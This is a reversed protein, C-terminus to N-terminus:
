KYSIQQSVLLDGHGIQAAGRGWLVLYVGAPCLWALCTKALVAGLCSSDWGQSERLDEQISVASRGSGTMRRTCATRTSDFVGDERHQQSVPINGRTHRWPPPLFESYPLCKRPTGCSPFFWSLWSDRTPTQTWTGQAEPGEGVEALRKLSDWLTLM